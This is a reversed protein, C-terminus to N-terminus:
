VPPTQRTFCRRLLSEGCLDSSSASSLLQNMEIREGLSEGGCDETIETDETTFQQEAKFTM